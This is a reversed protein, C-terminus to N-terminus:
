LNDAFAIAAPNQPPCDPALPPACDRDYFLKTITLKSGGQISGTGLTVRVTLTDGVHIVPPPNIFDITLLGNCTDVYARASGLSLALVVAAAGLTTKMRM